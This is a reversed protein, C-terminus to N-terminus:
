VRVLPAGPAGLPCGERWCNSCCSQSPRVKHASNIQNCMWHRFHWLCAPQEATRSAMWTITAMIIIQEAGRPGLFAGLVVLLQKCFGSGENRPLFDPLQKGTWLLGVGSCLLSSTQM